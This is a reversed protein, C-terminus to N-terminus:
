TRNSQFNRVRRALFLIGYVVALYTIALVPILISMDMTTLSPLSHVTLYSDTIDKRFTSSNSVIVLPILLM